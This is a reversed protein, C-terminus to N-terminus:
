RQGAREAARRCEQITDVLIAAGPLSGGLLAIGIGAAASIILSPAITQYCLVGVMLAMYSLLGMGLFIATRGSISAYEVEKCKCRCKCESM